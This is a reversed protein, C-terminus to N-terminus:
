ELELQSHAMDIFYQLSEPNRMAGSSIVNDPSEGSLIKMIPVEMKKGSITMPVQDIEYMKNPVHRPSLEFRITERIRDKLDDSFEIGDGLVVFLYLLDKGDRRSTQLILSDDVEDFRELIRYFESTGMRVGARNLTADSRGYIICTNRDTIKIWDGHRWIGPYVSFYSEEYLTGDKDGWLNVPMSPLPKTLVLEGVQGVLSEGDPGYAEVKAGLGICQIEGAYVPLLPCSGLFGTCM